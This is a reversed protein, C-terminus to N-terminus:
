MRVHSFQHKGENIADFNFIIQHVLITYQCCVMPEEPNTNLTRARAFMLKGKKYDYNPIGRAPVEAATPAATQQGSSSSSRQSPSSSGASAKAKGKVKGDLRQGEGSFVKHFLVIIIIIIMYQQMSILKKKEHILPPPSPLPFPTPALRPVLSYLLSSILVQFKKTKELAEKIM